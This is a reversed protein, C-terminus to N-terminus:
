KILGKKIMLDQTRVMGELHALRLENQTYNSPLQGDVTMHCKYCAYSGQIDYGKMALGAGGLHALVTTSPDFNCVGYLRIQCDEGQASKRIKNTM